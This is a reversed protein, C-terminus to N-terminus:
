EQNLFQKIFAKDLLFNVIEEKHEYDTLRFPPLAILHNPDNDPLRGINYRKPQYEAFSYTAEEIKDRKIEPDFITSQTNLHKPIVTVDIYDKILLMENEIKFSDILTSFNKVEYKNNMEASKEFVVFQGITSHVQECRQEEIKAMRDRQEDFKAKFENLRETAKPLMERYEQAKNKSISLQSLVQNHM